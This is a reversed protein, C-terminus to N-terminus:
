KQLQEKRRQEYYRKQLDQLDKSIATNEQKYNNVQAEYMNLQSTM